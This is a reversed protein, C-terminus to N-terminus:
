VPGYESRRNDTDDTNDTNADTDDTNDTNVDTHDTDKLFPKHDNTYIIRKIYIKPTSFNILFGVEYKSNRLYYYLQEEDIKSLFKKAKIEVIIKDEVVFDPQYRGILHGESSYFEIRKEKEFNIGDKKLNERFLRQYITEKHGPGYTNRISFAIKIIKYSLDSYLLKNIGTTPCM